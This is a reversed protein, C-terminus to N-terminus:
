PPTSIGAFKFIRRYLPGRTFFGETSFGEPISDKQLSDKQLLDQYLIRRYLLGRAILYYSRSEPLKELIRSCPRVVETSTKTWKPNYLFRRTFFGKTSLALLAMPEGSSLFSV